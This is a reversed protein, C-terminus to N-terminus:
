NYLSMVYSIPLLSSFLLIYYHSSTFSTLSTYTSYIFLLATHLVTFLLNIAHFNSPMSHSICLYCPPDSHSTNQHVELFYFFLFFLLFSSANFSSHIFSHFCPLSFPLSTLPRKRREWYPLCQLPQLLASCTVWIQRSVILCLIMWENMWNDDVINVHCTHRNRRWKFWLTIM